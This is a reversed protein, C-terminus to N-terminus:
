GGWRWRLKQINGFVSVKVDKSNPYDWSIKSLTLFIERWGWNCPNNVCLLDLVKFTGKRTVGWKFTFFVFFEARLINKCCGLVFHRCIIHIFGLLYYHSGLSRKKLLLESIDQCDNNQTSTWLDVLKLGYNTNPFLLYTDNETTRTSNFTYCM